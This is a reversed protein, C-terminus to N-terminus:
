IDHLIDTYPPPVLLAYAFNILLFLMLFVDVFSTRRVREEIFM